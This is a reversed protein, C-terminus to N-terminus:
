LYLLVPKIVTDDQLILKGALMFGYFDGGEGEIHNSSSPNGIRLLSTVRMCKIYWCRRSMKWNAFYSKQLLCCSTSFIANSLQVAAPTIDVIRASAAAGVGKPVLSPAHFSNEADMSERHTYHASECKHTCIFFTASSLYFNNERQVPSRLAQVIEALSCVPVMDLEINNYFLEVFLRLPQTVIVYKM